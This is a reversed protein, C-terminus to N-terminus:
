EVNVVTMMGAEAHELIHCHQVWSGKDLPVLGVGITEKPGVLVTDRFFGENYSKGNKSIVKFFQGHLHM